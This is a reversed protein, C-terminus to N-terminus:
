ASGSATGRRNKRATSTPWGSGGGGQDYECIAILEGLAFSCMLLFDSV